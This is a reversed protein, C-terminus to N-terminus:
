AGLKLLPNIGSADGAVFEARKQTGGAGCDRL